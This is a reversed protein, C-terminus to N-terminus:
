FTKEKEFGTDITQVEGHGTSIKITNELMDLSIDEKSDTYDNFIINANISLKDLKNNLEDIDFGNKSFLYVDSNELFSYETLYAIINTSDYDGKFAFKDEDKISIVIVQGDDLNAFVEEDAKPLAFAGSELYYCSEETNNGTYDGYDDFLHSENLKLSKDFISNM